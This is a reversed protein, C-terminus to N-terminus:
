YILCTWAIIGLFQLITIMAALAHSMLLDGPHTVRWKMEESDEYIAWYELVEDADEYAKM